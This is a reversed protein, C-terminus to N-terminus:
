LVSGQTHILEVFRELTCFYFYELHKLFLLTGLTGLTESVSPMAFCAEAMCRDGTLAGHIGQCSTEAHGHCNLLDLVNLERVIKSWV